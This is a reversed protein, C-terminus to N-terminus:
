GHLSTWEGPFAQLPAAAASGLGAEKCAVAAGHQGAGVFMRCLRRMCLGHEFHAQRHLGTSSRMIRICAGDLGVLACSSCGYMTGM